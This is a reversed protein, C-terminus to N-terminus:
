ASTGNRRKELLVIKGFDRLRNGAITNGLRRNYRDKKSCLSIGIRGNHDLAITLMTHKEQDYGLNWAIADLTTLKDFDRSPKPFHIYRVDNEKFPALEKVMEQMEGVESSDFVVRMKGMEREKREM